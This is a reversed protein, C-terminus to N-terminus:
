KTLITEIKKTTAKATTHNAQNWFGIVTVKGDGTRAYSTSIHNDYGTASQRGDAAYYLGGAYRHTTILSTLNTHGATSLLKGENFATVFKYYDSVSMSLDGAGLESALLPKSITYTTAYDTRKYAYPTVVGTIPLKSPAYTKTMKALTLIRQKLNSAYSEGTVQRIIGALLTFNASTYHWTHQNTSKLHTLTWNIAATESLVKSPKAEPMTIGSTHTLLEQITITKAYPVKPYFKSLPTTATLDGSQILQEIMTGTMAKQLSAIPYVTKETNVAKTAANAYGYSRVVPTKTTATAMLLTGKLHNTNVLADIKKITATPLGTTTAVKKTVVKFGTSKVWGYNKQNKQLQYYKGFDTSSQKVVTYAKTTLTKAAVKKTTLKAKTATPGQVTVAVKKANGTLQLHGTLQKTKFTTLLGDKTVHTLTKMDSQNIWGITKGALTQVHRYKFTLYKGTTTSRYVQDSAVTADTGNQLTQTSTPVQRYVALKGAYPKLQLYVPRTTASSTPMGVVLSGVLSVLGLLGVIGVKKFMRM